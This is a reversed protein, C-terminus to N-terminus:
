KRPEALRAGADKVALVVLFLLEERVLAFEKLDLTDVPAAVDVDVAQDSLAALRVSVDARVVRAHGELRTRVLDLVRRIEGETSDRQLQLKTAFRIRDRAGLTEIRMDALKGNPFVIVTREVTRIRTSRLGINEVNGEVGDVRVLDGVRFPQDALISLSGFLNEVTKQAALALAVGGLGLGAIVSTVPYGLESLAVMLALAWVVLKGLRVGVTALSRISPRTSAWEGEVVRDFGVTLARLLGWFFALWGLAALVRELLDEARLTLALYPLAFWFAVLAWGLTVPKALRDLVKGAWPLRGMLRRAVFASAWTLVRGVAVCLAALLPLAVWQWWYLAAPGQAQLPGPMKERLWQGRLSSYLVDVAQVTSQAFVWRAEDEASHPEHRVIRITTARGKADKVKGLELAGPPLGDQAKTKGDGHGSLHEVDVWLREALVTHLKRALEAARKEAGRPVDLYRAAEEHRGRDCLDLFARMSARPSDPAEEDPVPAASPPATAASVTGSPKIGQAQALGARGLLVGTVCAVFAAALALRVIAVFARPFPRPV